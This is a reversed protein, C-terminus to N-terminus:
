RVDLALGVPLAPQAARDDRPSPRQPDVKRVAASTEEALAQDDGIGAYKREGHAHPRRLRRADGDDVHVALRNGARHDLKAGGSREVRIRWAFGASAAISRLLAPRCKRGSSIGGTVLASPTSANRATPGSQTHAAAGPKKSLSGMGTSFPLARTTNCRAGTATPRTGTSAVSTGTGSMWSAHAAESTTRMGECFPGPKPM